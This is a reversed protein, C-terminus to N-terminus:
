ESESHGSVCYVSSAVEGKEENTIYMYECHLFAATEDVWYKFNEPRSKEYWILTSEVNAEPPMPRFGLGPNTGILGDGM